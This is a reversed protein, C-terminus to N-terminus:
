PNIFRREYNALSLFTRVQDANKPAPYKKVAQVRSPDVKVGEESVIHGLYKDADAAFKCKKIKVKLGNAQFLHFNVAM